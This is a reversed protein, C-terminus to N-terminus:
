LLRWLIGLISGTLVFGWCIGVVDRWSGDKKRWEQIFQYAIFVFLLAFGALVSRLSLEIPALFPIAFGFVWWAAVMGQPLHVLLRIWEEKTLGQPPLLLLRYLCTKIM